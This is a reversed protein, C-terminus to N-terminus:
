ICIINLAYRTMDSEAASIPMAQDLDLFRRQLRICSKIAFLYSHRCFHSRGVYLPESAMMLINGYHVSLTATPEHVETVVLDAACDTYALSSLDASDPWIDPMPRSTSIGALPWVNLVIKGFQETAEEPEQSM